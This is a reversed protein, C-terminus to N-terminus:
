PQHHRFDELQKTSPICEYERTRRYEWTSPSFLCCLYAFPRIRGGFHFGKVVLARGSGMWGTCKSFSIALKELVKKFYWIKQSNALVIKSQVKLFDAVYNKPNFNIKKRPHIQGKLKNTEGVWKSRFSTSRHFWMLGDELWFLKLSLLSMIHASCQWWQQKSQDREQKSM